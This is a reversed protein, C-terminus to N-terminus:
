RTKTIEHKRSERREGEHRENWYDLGIGAGNKTIEIWIPAHDRGECKFDRTRNPYNHKERSFSPRSQSRSFANTATGFRRLDGDACPIRLLWSKRTAGANFIQGCHLSATGGCLTQSRTSSHPLIWLDLVCLGSALFSFSFAFFYGRPQPLSMKM